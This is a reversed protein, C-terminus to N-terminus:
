AAGRCSWPKLGLQAYLNNAVTIQEERSSQNANYSFALGGGIRWADHTMMLGGYYTGTSNTAVLSWRQGSECWAIRDWMAARALNLPPTSTGGGTSPPTTTTPPPPSTTSGTCGLAKWTAPGVVGDTVLGKTSQFSKVAALTVPGFWGDTELGLAKQLVKVSSGTANYRVTSGVTCTRGGDRSTGGTAPFGGLAKWTLPGVVGDVVLHKGSQFAKVAALTKPGFVGDVTVGGVRQQVVKVLSGTSGYSVAVVTTTTAAKVVGSATLSSQVAAAPHITAADAAGAALLSAGAATGATAPIAVASILGKGALSNLTNPRPRQHRPATRKRSAELTASTM